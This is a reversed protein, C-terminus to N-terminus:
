ARTVIGDCEIEEVLAAFEREFGSAQRAAWGALRLTGGPGARVHVRCHPFNLSVTLGLFLLFGAVIVLGYGPDRAALLTVTYQGETGNYARLYFKISRYSLPQNLRVRGRLLERDGAAVAVQAEYGAASGDPYRAITFGANRLALGTGHGIEAMEGPAITIEERWGYGSGLAVGVLLLLVALHTLLTALPALRNRDGRLYFADGTEEDRTCFGRRGLSRRAIGGGAGGILPPAITLRASHPAADFAADSCRVPQDFVRRWVAQWRNLTCVLTAAALLAVALLFVGSSAYRFAGSAALLDALSGYRARADAAWRALREPDAMIQPSLQPFCSGVAALALLAFILAAAVDLRGLFRWARRLVPSESSAM